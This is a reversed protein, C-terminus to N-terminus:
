PATEQTSESQAAPDLHITAERVGTVTAAFTQRTTENRVEIVEDLRGDGGARAVTRVVLGGSICRVTVLEGRRVMLPTEIMSPYLVAGERLQASAIQGVVLKLDRIPEGRDDRLFVERVAVADASFREGRSISRTAVIVLARREVQAAVQLTEAVRDGRYRRITLPVRGVFRSAPSEIEFRDILAGQQLLAEDRESFTVRLDSATAGTLEALRAVVLGRLTSASDLNIEVEVNSIAAADGPTRAPPADPSSEGAGTRHVRCNAFGRLTVLGWNIGHEGLVQRLEGMSLQLQTAEGAFSGVVTDAFRKALPGELHAVEALRVQPGPAEAQAHLRITDGRAAIGITLVAAAFLIAIMRVLSAGPSFQEDRMANNGEANM